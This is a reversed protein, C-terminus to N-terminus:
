QVPSAAAAAKAARQRLIQDLIFGGATGAVVGILVGKQSRSMEGIAAGAGAGAGMIAATRSLPAANPDQNLNKEVNLNKVLDHFTSASRLADALLVLNLQSNSAAPPPATAPSQGWGLATMFFLGLTVSSITKKMEFRCAEQESKFVRGVGLGNRGPFM